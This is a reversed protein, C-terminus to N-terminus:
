PTVTVQLTASSLRGAYNEAEVRVVYNGPQQPAKMQAEYPARSKTVTTTDPMSFEVSKVGSEDDEADVRVMFLAGAKVTLPGDTEMTVVPATRDEGFTFKVSDTALNFYTDRIEVRLTHTGSSDFTKPLRISSDFPANTERNVIKDDIYWSIESLGNGTKADYRPHFVPFTVIGGDNPSVISVSPKIERGPTLTPDCKETPAKPLDKYEINALWDPHKSGLPEYPVYFEREEIADAPCEDSPLLGTVRDVAIKKCAPDQLTPPHERLFLDAKRAEVPTCTTPLEGSLTSVQVQILGDPQTFTKPADKLSATARSLFDKWIPAAVNLGDASTPLPTADANGVWVGAVISPTYGMTWVDLPKRETCNGRDDQKLCKNSTGTKAAAATGEVTLANRWFDGPRASPDSLISTVMYAIRPDLVQESVTDKSAEYLIAGGQDTIKKITVLPRYVGGAALSAYASVMEVLPTEAAGIALAPGYGAAPKREKPTEAGLSAAVDLVADEEGAMYYAKIAPINRSAGLASRATMLGQFQGDFNQPQYTGLKIASDPIVTGPSYGQKFASAYVIPKFSSGPQRPARAMDIKGSIEDDNYNANGVYALVERSMPEVAVLAINKAGYTKKTEERRYEVATEAMQQLNWDLSTEIKLGGQAIYDEETSGALLDEAQQRIWLVFHPARINDRSQKFETTELEKVAKKKQEETIYGQQEMEQLVQDARGGIYLVHSGTGFTKGLLGIEIDEDPIQTLSTISGKTIKEAIAPDVVTRAHEGYPNFYSPRQPLSALVAAQALSVDKAAIGFYRHSAQEIGYANQGFPIWNLYLELIKDKDYRRELKCALMLERVKRTLSRENSILSNRALQQTLTSGGSRVFFSPFVQSAVARTFARIDVCGHDYFRQDEIAVAAKKMYDPILKGDVYTRDQDLYLRYLEIGNRDTIITSQAALLSDGVDPLTFWLLAFYGFGVVCAAIIIRKWGKGGRRLKLAIAWTWARVSRAFSPKRGRQAPARYSPRTGKPQASPSNVTRTQFASM